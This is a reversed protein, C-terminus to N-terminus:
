TRHTLRAHDLDGLVLDRLQNLFDGHNSIIWILHLHLIEVLLLGLLSLCM